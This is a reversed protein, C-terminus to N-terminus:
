APLFLARPFYKFFKGTPNRAHAPEIIIARARPAATVCHAGPGIDVSSNGRGAPTPPTSSIDAPISRARAWISEAARACCVPMCTYPRACAHSAGARPPHVRARAISNGIEALQPSHITRGPSFHFIGYALPPPSTFKPARDYIRPSEERACAGAPKKNNRSSAPVDHRSAPLSPTLRKKKKVDM